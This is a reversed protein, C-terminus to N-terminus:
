FAATLRYRMDQSIFPFPQIIRSSSSEWIHSGLTVIIMDNSFIRRSKLELIVQNSSSPLEVVELAWNEEGVFQEQLAEAGVKVAM